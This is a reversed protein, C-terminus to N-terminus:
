WFSIRSYLMVFSMFFIRTVDGSLPYSNRWPWFNFFFSFVEVKYNKWRILVSDTPIQKQKRDGRLHLEAFHNQRCRLVRDFNHGWHKAPVKIKSLQPFKPSLNITFFVYLFWPCSTCGQPNKKQCVGHCVEMWGSINIMICSTKQNWSHVQSAVEERRPYFASDKEPTFDEPNKPRPTEFRRKARFDDVYGRYWGHTYKGISSYIIEKHYIFTPYIYRPNGLFLPNGGWIMWKLLPTEM